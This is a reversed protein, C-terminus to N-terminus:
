GRHSRWLDIGELVLQDRLITRGKATRECWPLFAEADGGCLLVNVRSGCAEAKNIYYGLVEKVLGAYMASAGESIGSLTDCGPQWNQTLTLSEPKLNQTESAMSSCLLPMGPVILGGDHQGRPDVYDVTIASGADIIVKFGPYDAHAALMALWRDVGLRSVEQYAVRLGAYFKEVEIYEVQSSIHERLWCDFLQRLRTNAVCSVKVDIAEIRDANLEHIHGKLADLVQRSNEWDRWALAGSFNGAASLLRWKMRTNGLDFNIQM